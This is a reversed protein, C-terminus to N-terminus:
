NIELEFLKPWLKGTIFMKKSASDYAIGNLVADPNVEATPAYQKLLGAMNMIGVVHGNDPDIKVIDNSFWINAYIYGEIYELENLYTVEGQNNMVTVIKLVKLEKAAEDPQVFYLKSTGDSIIMNEGDHTAGWGERNWKLTSIPTTIDNLNYVFVKNNKWTLQYLKDKFITIGEGFITNDPILHDKEAVGTKLDVIRLRSKGYEGTGEYLKGKYFELGQTFSSPDHPYISKVTFIMPVPAAINNPRVVPLSKDFDSDSNGGCSIFLMALILVVFRNTMNTLQNLAFTLM